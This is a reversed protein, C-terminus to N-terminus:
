LTEEVYGDKQLNQFLAKSNEFIFQTFASVKNMEDVSPVKGSAPGAGKAWFLNPGFVIAVNSGTMGNSASQTSVENLFMVLARLITLNRGPLHTAFLSQCAAIRDKLNGDGTMKMVIPYISFGMLPARLDRLFTKMVNAAMHAGGFKNFDVTEGNNYLVKVEKLKSQNASRRFIGQTSMGNKRVYEASHKLVKPINGDLDEDRMRSIDAGFVREAAGGGGKCCLMVGVACGM